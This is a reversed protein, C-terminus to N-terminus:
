AEVRSAYAQLYRSSIPRGLTRCFSLSTAALKELNVGTRIGMGDLMYVLDETALNGTAGPAFPCGGLGGASADLIAVGIEMAALANALATGRTDHFHGALRVKRGLKKVLPGMVDVVGKPTAVGITDGVSIEPIGLKALREVVTIAKRPAVKGEFPCGFATSVYGRVEIKARKAERVVETFVSISEDISMGINKKAFSETAATFVAIGKAGSAIARELGKLNPVLAFAKARGLNLTGNRVAEYVRDTDAMQPVLDTRVFAGLELRKVGAALLGQALRIKDDFRVSRAENQLGDRVGVEFIEIKKPFKAM